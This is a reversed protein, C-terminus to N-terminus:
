DHGGADVDAIQSLDAKALDPVGADGGLDGHEVPDDCGTLLLPAAGLTLGFVLLL